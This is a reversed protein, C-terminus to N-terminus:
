LSYGLSHRPLFVNCFRLYTSVFTHHHARVEWILMAFAYIDSEKSRVRSDLGFREPFILEPALWRVSFANGGTPSPFVM